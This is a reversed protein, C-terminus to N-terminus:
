AKDNPQPKAEPHWLKLPVPRSQMTRKGPTHRVQTFEINKYNRGDQLILLNRPILPLASNRNGGGAGSYRTAIGLLTLRGFHCTRTAFECLYITKTASSTSLALASLYFSAGYSRFTM